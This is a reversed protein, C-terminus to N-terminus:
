GNFLKSFIKMFFREESLLSNSFNQNCYNEEKKKQVKFMMFIEKLKGSSNENIWILFEKRQMGDRMM